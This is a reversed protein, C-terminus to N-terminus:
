PTQLTLACKTFSIMFRRKLQYARWPFMNMNNDDPMPRISPLEWGGWITSWNGDHVFLFKQNKLCEQIRSSLNEDLNQEDEDDSDDKKPYSIRLRVAIQLQFNKM